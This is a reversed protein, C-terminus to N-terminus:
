WLIETEIPGTRLMVFGRKELEEETKKHKIDSKISRKGGRSRMSILGLIGILEYEASNDIAQQSNARAEEATITNM